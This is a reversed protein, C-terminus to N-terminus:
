EFRQGRYRITLGAALCLKECMPCPKGTIYITGGRMDSTAYAIANAEAHIAHCDAYDGTAHAIEDSTKLGRPCDGAFCSRPDGAPPGNYGTSIIRHNGDVVVAGHQARRCDARLSVARAIDLFYTDWDPRQM